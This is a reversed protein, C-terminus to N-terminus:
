GLLIARGDSTMPIVEAISQQDAPLNLVANEALRQSPLNSVVIRGSVRVAWLTPTVETIM